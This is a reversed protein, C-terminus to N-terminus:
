LKLLAYLHSLQLLQLCHTPSATMVQRNRHQIIPLLFLMIDSYECTSCFLPCLASKIRSIGVYRTLVPSDLNIATVCMRTPLSFLRFNSLPELVPLVHAQGNM